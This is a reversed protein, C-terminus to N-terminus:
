TFPQQFFNITINFTNGGWRPPPLKLAPAFARLPLRRGVVCAFPAPPLCLWVAGGRRQCGVLLAALPRPRAAFRLGVVRLAPAPPLACVSLPTRPTPEIPLNALRFGYVCASLDRPCKKTFFCNQSDSKRAFSNAFSKKDRLHFSKNASPNGFVLSFHGRRNLSGFGHAM